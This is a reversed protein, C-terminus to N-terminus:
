GYGLCCGFWMSNSAAVLKGGTRADQILHFIDRGPSFPGSVRWKSRSQDGSRVFAGKRTGALALMDGARAPVPETM